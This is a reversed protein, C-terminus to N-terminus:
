TFFAEMLLGELSISAETNLTRGQIIARTLSNWVSTTSRLLQIIRALKKRAGYSQGKFVYCVTLSAEVKLLLTYEELKIRDISQDFVGTSFAQIATLFNGILQNDIKNKLFIKSYLTLGSESILLLGVPKEVSLTPFDITQKRVMRRVLPDLHALEARETITANRAVLEEWLELQDLLADHENSIKLALRQIGWKEAIQQALSLLRRAGELDLEVLALKAKLWHTEALLWPSHQRQAISVLRNVHTKVENLLELDDSVRLDELLLVCLNLLAEVTVEHKVVTEEAVQEFLEEAKARDRMRASAKLVLAEGVRSLQNIIKNDEQANIQQLRELYSQTQSLSLKNSAVSILQFLSSAIYFNNGLTEWIALSEEFHTLALGWDGKQQYVVGINHHTSATANKNGIESFYIKSREFCELANDLEGKLIYIPGISKLVQAVGYKNDIEELITRSKGFYELAQNLEGKVGYLRAIAGYSEAIGNKNGVKERLTLGRRLLQLAGDLNGRMGFLTGKIQLLSAERSISEAPYEQTLTKLLQEGQDIVKLSENFKGLRWLVQGMAILADMEYLPKRLDHSVKLASEALKLAEKYQGIKNMITSKLLQYTFLDSSSLGEKKELSELNQLAARFKGDFVFQEIRSM